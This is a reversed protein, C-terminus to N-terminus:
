YGRHAAGSAAPPAAPPPTLRLVLLGAGGLLSMILLGNGLMETWTLYVNLSNPERHTQLYTVEVAFYLLAVLAAVAPGRRQMLQLVSRMPAPMQLWLVGWSVLAIGFSLVSTLLLFLPPQLGYPIHVGFILLEVGHFLLRHLAVVAVGVWVLRSRTQRAQAAWVLANLWAGLPLCYHLLPNYRGFFPWEISTGIGIFILGFCVSLLWFFLQMWYLWRWRPLICWAGLLVLVFGAFLSLMTIIFNGLAIAELPDSQAVQPLLLGLALLWYRSPSPIRM